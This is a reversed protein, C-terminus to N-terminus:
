FTHKQLLKDTLSRHPMPLFYAQRIQNTKTAPSRIRVYGTLVPASLCLGSQQGLRMEATTRIITQSEKNITIKSTMVWQPFECCTIWRTHFDCRVYLLGSHECMWVQGIEAHVAPLCLSCGQAQFQTQVGGGLSRLAVGQLHFWFNRFFYFERWFFDPGVKHNM